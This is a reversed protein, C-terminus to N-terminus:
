RSHRKGRDGTAQPGARSQDANLSTVLEDLSPGASDNNQHLDLVYNMVSTAEGAVLPCKNDDDEAPKSETVDEEKAQRAKNIKKWM